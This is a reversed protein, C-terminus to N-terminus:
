PFRFQVVNVIPFPSALKKLLITVTVPITVNVDPVKFDWFEVNEDWVNTHEAM